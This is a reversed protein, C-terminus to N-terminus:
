KLSDLASTRDQLVKVALQRTRTEVGATNESHALSEGQKLHDRLRTVLETDFAAGTLEAAAAVQEPTVMGPMTMGEHPNQAPLRAEDHLARLTTLEDDTFAKVQAATAKLAPKAAHTPALDLLPLLQEDLAINIEIWALDTGGFSSSAIPAPKPAAAPSCGALLLVAALPPIRRM